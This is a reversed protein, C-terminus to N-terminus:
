KKRPRPVGYRDLRRLLTKRSIGLLEAARSQNGGCKELADLM